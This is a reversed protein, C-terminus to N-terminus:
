SDQSQGKSPTHSQALLRDDRLEPQRRQSTPVIHSHSGGEEGSDGDDGEGNFPLCSVFPFVQSGKTGPLPLARVWRTM